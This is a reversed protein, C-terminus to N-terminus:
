RTRLDELGLEELELADEIRYLDVHALPVEGPYESVLTYTPSHVRRHDIGMGRAIGRVFATKGTGLEGHLIVWDGPELSSGFRAALAETQEEDECLYEGTM